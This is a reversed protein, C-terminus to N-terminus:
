LNLIMALPIRSPVLLEYKRAPQLRKQVAPDKFDQKTLLIEFDHSADTCAQSFDLIPIDRRNAVGPSFMIGKTDLIDTSIKLFKTEGIHGNSRAVYEMPHSSAFCLHVYDDIGYMKDADQSWENGGPATVSIKQRALERRSFIGGNDKISPLNRVDTFHYLAKGSLYKKRFDDIAM